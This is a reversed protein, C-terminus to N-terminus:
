GGSHTIYFRTIILYVNHFACIFWQRGGPLISGSLIQSRYGLNGQTAIVQKNSTEVLMNM